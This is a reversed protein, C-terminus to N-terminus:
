DSGKQGFEIGKEQLLEQLEEENQANFFVTSIEGSDSIIIKFQRNCCPCNTIYEVM